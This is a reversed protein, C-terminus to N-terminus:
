GARGPADATKGTGAKTPRAAVRSVKDSWDNLKAYESKLAEEPVESGVGYAIAGNGLTLNEDAVYM